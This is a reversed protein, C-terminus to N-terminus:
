AAGGGGASGGADCVAGVAGDDPRVADGEGEAREIVLGLDPDLVLALSGVRLLMDRFLLLKRRALISVALWPLPTPQGRLLGVLARNSIRVTRGALARTVEVTPEAGLDIPRTRAADLFAGSADGYLCVVEVSDDGLRTAARLAASAGDDDAFWSHLTAFPDDRRQPSPWLRDKALRADHEKDRCFEAFSAALAPSLEGPPDRYVHEVLPEIDTPLELHERGGLALLSRRLVYREYVAGVGALDVAEADGAPRVITLTPEETGPPRARGAHRHLRGARQLVLDAPALDTVLADFDVDLSQELVQTGVVVMRAPRAGRPGLAGVIREEIARREDVPFRAHLLVLETGEPLLGARAAVSLRVFTSQARAVTNRLVGFCGGTFLRAVLEDALAAEDDDAFALRVRSPARSTALARAGSTTASAFSLRPYVAEPLADGDLARGAYAELLARRRASPLTASLVVVTAGLAGLWAVLRDLLTSTYTDYAHVEDLVVTKGALGFLRVFAHPTRLVGLLAQDVTGAGFPALLARKKSLFWPECGLGGADDYVARVLRQVVPAFRAEGHILQLNTRQDPRTRELFETLRVFMQNATAQTPLGLFTGDHLGAAALAHAVFLAAETKGEGMPAEVVACFPGEVEAALTAAAAQLPRPAFGFLAEFSAPQPPAARHFGVQELAIAARERAHQLYVDTPTSPAAYTFVDAMSGIWDAVSTLGALAAFFAWDATRTLAPVPQHAVGLAFALDAVLAARAASWGASKGREAPGILGVNSERDTPFAGHHAAVARALQNAPLPAVGFKVLAERVLHVGVAGHPRADRPARVDLGLAELARPAPAWKAQFAPTAKGLDHLAVLFVLFAHAHAPPGDLAGVLRASTSAPLLGDLLREAVAAVDLMHFALPHAESDAGEGPRAKGWLAREVQGAALEFYRDM